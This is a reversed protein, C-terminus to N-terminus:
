NKFKSIRQKIMKVKAKNNMKNKNILKISNKYKNKLNFKM